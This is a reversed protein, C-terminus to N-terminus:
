VCNITACSKSSYGGDIGGIGRGLSADGARRGQRKFLVRGDLVGDTDATSMTITRRLLAHHTGAYTPTPGRAVAKDEAKLRTAAAEKGAFDGSCGFCRSLGRASDCTTM